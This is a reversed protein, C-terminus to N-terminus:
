HTIASHIISFLQENTVKSKLLAAKVLHAYKKELSFASFVIVPIVQKTECNVCPLIDTGVGDPLMLDLVILDFPHTALLTKAAQLTPATWISAENQLLLHIITTVDKDDEICLIQPIQNIFQLKMRQVVAKFHNKDVPKEIWDIIPFGSGNLTKKGEEAITSIVVIPLEKTKADQRLKHIFKIGSEDSLILDLTMAAYRNTHLMKWAEEATYATDAIINYEKLFDKLYSASDPNSDCVLVKIQDAQDLNEALPAITKEDEVGKNPLEFYFCTGKETSIFDITGKHKDIIAKCISLGLGTGGKSRTTSSDAQSFKQFIRSRFEEPIGEGEDEVSVRTLTANKKVTVTINKHPPSYRIANSLLNVLVQMLRDYDGKIKAKQTPIFQIKVKSKDAIAETATIADSVLQNVELTKLFFNMKGAEIKEIDLIDNILRVLRECNNNAIQLLNQMRDPLDGSLGGLILGLSGRISTLPTRLEHSVVSIFENKIKETRKLETVDHIVIVAGLKIGEANIIPQGDIIVDRMLGQKLIMVLPMAHIREGRLARYLPFQEEPLNKEQNPMYLTFYDLLHDVTTGKPIDLYNQLVANCVTLKGEADCAIIGDELNNLMANLFEKENQVAIVIHRYYTSVSLTITIILGTVGAIFFALLYPQIIGEMLPMGALPTFVAAAMGTYHMGCIAAGMVLASLVKFRIQRKLAGKNSELALWLAAESAVIAIIISLFFLGPLYRIQVHSTMGEMGMYHMTAIALGMCIGGIAMNTKTPQPARLIFLAIGSALMAVLLSAITWSLQYAMTMPMVFALMGIFHMSWIGAGM